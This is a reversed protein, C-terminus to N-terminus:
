NASNSARSSKIIKSEYRVNLLHLLKEMALGNSADEILIEVTFLHGHHNPKGQSM